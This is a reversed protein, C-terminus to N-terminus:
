DCLFEKAITFRRHFTAKLVSHRHLSASIVSTGRLAKIVNLHNGEIAWNIVLQQQPAPIPRFELLAQLKEMQHFKMALHVWRLYVNESINNDLVVVEETERHGNKQALWHAYIRDDEYIQAQNSLLQRVVETHGRRSAVLVAHTRNQLPIPQGDRMLSRICGIHARNAALRVALGREYESLPTTELLHDLNEQNGNIVADYVARIQAQLARNENYNSRNQHTPVATDNIHTIEIRCNPCTNSPGKYFWEHICEFHFPHTEGGAHSLGTDNAEIDTLCISCTTPNQLTIKKFSM